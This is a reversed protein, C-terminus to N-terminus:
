GCSLIEGYTEIPFFVYTHMNRVPKTCMKYVCVVCTYERALVPMTAQTHLGGLAVLGNIAALYLYSDPDTLQATFLAIIYPLNKVTMPNKALVMKKLRMCGYARTPLQEDQLNELISALQAEAEREDASSPTSSASQAPAPAFLPSTPDRTVIAIRVAQALSSVEQQAHAELKELVPFLPRLADADEQHLGPQDGLLTDLLGLALLMNEPRNTLLLMKLLPVGQDLNRMLDPGVEECLLIQM